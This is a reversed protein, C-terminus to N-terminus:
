LQHEQKFQEIEIKLNIDDFLLFSAEDYRNISNTVDDDAPLKDNDKIYESIATKDFVKNNHGCIVPDSMLANSLACKYKPPIDVTMTHAEQGEDNRRERREVAVYNSEDIEATNAAIKNKAILSKIHIILEARHSHIDFGINLLDTKNVSLLSLGNMQKEQMLALIVGFDLCNPVASENIWKMKHQMWLLIDECTWKSWGADIKKWGGDIQKASNAIYKKNLVQFQQYGKLLEFYSVSYEKYQTIYNQLTVIKNQVEFDKKNLENATLIQQNCYRTLDYLSQLLQQCENRTSCKAIYDNETKIRTLRDEYAKSQEDIKFKRNMVPIIISTQSSELRQQQIETLSESKKQMRVFDVLDLDHSQMKLNLENNISNLQKTMKNWDSLVHVKSMLVAEIEEQDDVDKM